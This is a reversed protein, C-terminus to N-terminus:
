YWDTLKISAYDVGYEVDHKLYDWTEANSVCNSFTSKFIELTKPVAKIVREIPSGSTSNFTYSATEAATISAFELCGMMENVIFQDLGKPYYIYAYICFESERRKLCPYTFNVKGLPTKFTKKCPAVKFEPVTVGLLRQVHFEKNALHQENPLSLHSELNVITYGVEEPDPTTIFFQPMSNLLKQQEEAPLDKLDVADGLDAVEEYPIPKDSRYFNYKYQTLSSTM